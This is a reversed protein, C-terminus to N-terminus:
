MGQGLELLIPGMVLLLMAPLILAGTPLMMKVPAKAVREEMAARYSARAQAAIEELSAAFASGFRLSRIVTETARALDDCVYSAALQRLGEERPVLGMTWREYAAACARAFGSDFHSSYLAFSKDFSLGSRLGLAVVELMESLHAQAEQARARKQELIAWRLAFWGAAGLCAAGLLSLEWSFVCGVLAGVLVGAVTIRFRTECFGRADLSEACGAATAHESVFTAAGGANCRGSRVLFSLPQQRSCALSQTINVALSVLRASLDADKHGADAVGAHERAARARLRARRWEVIRVCACSGAIWMSAGAIWPIAGLAVGSLGSM